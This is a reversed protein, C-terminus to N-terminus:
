TVYASNTWNTQATGVINGTMVKIHDTNSGNVVNGLINGVNITGFAAWGLSIDNIANGSWSFNQSPNGSVGDLILTGSTGGAQICASNVVSLGNTTYFAASAVQGGFFNCGSISVDRIGLPSIDERRGDFHLSFSWGNNATINLREITIYGTTQQGVTAVTLTTAGTTGTTLTAPASAKSILVIKDDCPIAIAFITNFITSNANIASAMAYAISQKTDGALVTYNVATGGVTATLVNGTTITGGVTMTKVYGDHTAIAAGSGFDTRQSIIQLDRIALGGGNANPLLHIMGFFAGTSYSPYLITNQLGDGTITRGWPLGSTMIPDPRTSFIWNGTPIHLSSVWATAACYKLWINWYPTCDSGDTNAGFQRFDPKKEALVAYKGNASLHYAPHSPTVSKIRCWHGGGDTGAYYNAIYIPTDDALSVTAAAFAAVTPYVVMGITSSAINAQNTATTASSAASTAAAQADALIANGDIAAAIMLQYHDANWCMLAANGMILSGSALTGNLANKIAVAAGGNIAITTAGTNNTTPILLYLHQAPTLPSIPATAVIANGTGGTVTLQIVSIQLDGVRTWSGSGSAGSKVYIGNNAATSDAYVMALTSAGHALDANLLALTAYGLGLQALLSELMVGWQRVDRKVPQHPGSAPVGDTEYDRWIEIASLITM